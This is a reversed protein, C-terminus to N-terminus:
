GLARQLAWVFGAGAIATTMVPLGLQWGTPRRSLWWLLPGILAVVVIQGVEVGSNFGLLALLRSQDASMLDSLVNAFGFGHVLGFGFSLLYTRHPFIPWLVNLAAVTISIAIAVEVWRAPLHVVDLASLALTMSHALTFATVVGLLRKLLQRSTSGDTRNEQLLALILTILFLMHDYGSWLHHMGLVVFDTFAQFPTKRVRLDLQRNDPSLVRTRAQGDGTVAVLLRHQVDVDFLLQDDLGNASDCQLLFRVALYPGDGHEAIGALEPTAPCPRDDNSFTMTRGLLAEIEGEHALVDQWQLTGDQNRDLPLLRQLDLLAIDLRVENGKAPWYLYASSSTHALLPASLCSLSLVLVQIAGTLWRRTLGLM